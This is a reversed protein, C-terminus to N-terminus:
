RGAEADGEQAAVLVMVLEGLGRWCLSGKLSTKEKGGLKQMEKRLAVLVM